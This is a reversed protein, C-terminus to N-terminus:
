PDISVLFRSLRGNRCRQEEGGLESFLCPFWSVDNVGQCVDEGGWRWTGDRWQFGAVGRRFWVWLCVIDRFRGVKSLASVEEVKFGVNKTGYRKLRVDGEWIGQCYVVELGKVCKFGM